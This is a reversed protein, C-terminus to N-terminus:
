EGGVAAASEDATVRRARESLSPTGDHVGKGEEVDHAAGRRRKPARTVTSHSIHLNISMYLGRGNNRAENNIDSRDNAFAFRTDAHPGNAM